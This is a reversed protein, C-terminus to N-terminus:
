DKIFVLVRKNNSSESFLIMQYAGPSLSNVDFEQPAMQQELGGSIVIQGGSSIIQYSMPESSNKNGELLLVNNAPNPYLLYSVAETENIGNAQVITIEFIIHIVQQISDLNILDIHLEGHGPTNNIYVNLIIKDMASVVVPLIFDSSDPAPNHYTVNDQIAMVWQSPYYTLVTDIKWRMRIDDNTNNQLDFYEHPPTSAATTKYIDKYTTDVGFGQGVVALSQFVLIFLLLLIRM